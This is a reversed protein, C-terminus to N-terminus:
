DSDACRGSHGPSTILYDYSAITFLEVQHRIPIFRLWSDYGHKTIEVVGTAKWKTMGGIGVEMQVVVVGKFAEAQHAVLPREDLLIQRTELM